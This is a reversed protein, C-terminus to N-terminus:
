MQQPLKQWSMLHLIMFSPVGFAPILAMPLSQMMVPLPEGALLLPFGEGSLIATGFAAVFDLMGVIVLLRVRGEWGVSRREVALVVALALLGVAVDGLGATLAFVSPLQGQFWFILFVIGIVRFTQAGTILGLDLGAVWARVAPSLRYALLYLLPPIVAALALAFPVGAVQIQFVGQWTLAVVTALWLPVIAWVLPHWLATTTRPTPFSHDTM